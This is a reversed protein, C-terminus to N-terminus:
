EDGQGVDTTNTLKSIDFGYPSQAFNPDYPVLQSQTEAKQMAYHKMAIVDAAVEFSSSPISAGSGDLKTILCGEETATLYVFNEPAVNWEAILDDCQELEDVKANAYAGGSRVLLTDVLRDQLAVIIPIDEPKVSPYAVEENIDDHIITIVGSSNLKTIASAVEQNAYANGNQDVRIIDSARLVAATQSYKTPNRFAPVGCELESVGEHFRSVTGIDKIYCPTNWGVVEYRGDFILKTLVNEEMDLYTPLAPLIDFFSDNLIMFSNKPTNPFLSGRPGEGKGQKPILDVIEKSNKDFVCLPRDDPEACPSVLVAADANQEKYFQYMQQINVDFLVDSYTFLFSERGILQQLDKSCFAGATGLPAIEEYFTITIDDCGLNANIQESTFASEIFEKKNGVILIFNKIGNDHLMRMQHELITDKATGHNEHDTRRINVMAKPLEGTISALRTGAGGAMIIATELKEDDRFKRKGM